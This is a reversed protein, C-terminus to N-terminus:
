KGKALVWGYEEGQSKIKRRTVLEMILERLFELVKLVIVVM